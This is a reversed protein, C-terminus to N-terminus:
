KLAEEGVPQTRLHFGAPVGDSTVAVGEPQEDAKSARSALLWRRLQPDFIQVGIHDTVEEDVNFRRAAISRAAPVSAKGSNSREEAVDGHAIWRPQQM